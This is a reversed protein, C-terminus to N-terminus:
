LYEEENNCEGGLLNNIFGEKFFAQGMRHYFLNTVHSFEGVTISTGSSSQFEELTKYFEAAMRDYFLNTVHSFSTVSSGPFTIIKDYFAQAVRDYFLNTVHSFVQKNFDIPNASHSAQIAKFFEGAVRDFYLNTPYKGLSENVGFLDDDSDGGSLNNLGIDIIEINGSINVWDTSIATDIYSNFAIIDDEADGNIIIPLKAIVLRVQPKKTFITQVLNNLQGSLDEFAFEKFEAVGPILLIIDPNDTNIYNVIKGSMNVITEGSISRHKNQNATIIADRSQYTWKGGPIGFNVSNGDYFGNTSSTFGSNDSYEWGSGTGIYREYSGSINDGYELVKYVELFPSTFSGASLKEVVQFTHGSENVFFNNVHLTAPDPATEGVSTNFDNGSVGVFMSGSLNDSQFRLRNWLGERYGHRFPNTWTPYDTLGATFDGGLCMIRPPDINSM